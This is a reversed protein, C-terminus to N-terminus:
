IPVHIYNKRYNILCNTDLKVDNLIKTLRDFQEDTMDGWARHNVSSWCCKVRFNRLVDKSKEHGTYNIREVLQTCYTNFENDFDPHDRLYPGAWDFFDSELYHYHQLGQKVECWQLYLAFESKSRTATYFWKAFEKLGGYHNIM